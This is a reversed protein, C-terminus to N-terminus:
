PLATPYNNVTSHTGGGMAGSHVAGYLFAWPGLTKVSDWAGEWFTPERSIINKPPVPTNMTFTSFNEFTVKGTGNSSTVTWLEAVNASNYYSDAIKGAAAINKESLGLCGSFLCLASPLLVLFLVSLTSRGVGLTSGPPPAMLAKRKAWISWLGTAVVVGAGVLGETDAESALGKRALYGGLIATAVRVLGGVYALLNQKDM